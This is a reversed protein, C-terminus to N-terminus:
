KCGKKTKTMRKGSGFVALAFGDIKVNCEAQRSLFGCVVTHKRAPGSSTVVVCGTM